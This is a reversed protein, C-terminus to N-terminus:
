VLDVSELIADFHRDLGLIPGVMHSVHPGMHHARKQEEERGGMSRTKELGQIKQFIIHCFTQTCKVDPLDRFTLFM